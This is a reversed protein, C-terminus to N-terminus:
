WGLSTMTEMSPVKGTGRWTETGAANFIVYTPVVDIDYKQRVYKGLSSRFDIRLVRGRSRLKSELRDVFPKASM